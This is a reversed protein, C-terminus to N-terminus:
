SGTVRMQRRQTLVTRVAAAGVGVLCVAAILALISTSNSPGTDSVPQPAAAPPDALHTSSTDDGGGGSTGSDAGPAAASSPVAGRAVPDHVKPASSPSAGDAPQHGPASSDSGGAKHNNDGSNDADGSGPNGPHRSSSSPSPAATGTVTASKLSSLLNLGDPVMKVKTTGPEIKLTTRDGNGVSAGREGDVYLHAGCGLRNAFAVTSSVTADMNTVDPESRAATTLLGCNGSFTVTGPTPTPDASAPGSVLFATGAVLGCTALVVAFRSNRVASRHRPHYRM